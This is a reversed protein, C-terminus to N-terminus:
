VRERCSARGIGVARGYLARQELLSGKPAVELVTDFHDIAAQVDGRRGLRKTGNTRKMMKNSRYAQRLGDNLRSEALMLRAWARVMEDAEENNNLFDSYARAAFPDSSGLVTGNELSEVIEKQIETPVGIWSGWAARRAQITQFDLVNWGLAGVVLGVVLWTGVLRQLHQPHDNRFFERCFGFIPALMQVLDSNAAPQPTGTSSSEEVERPKEDASPKDDM